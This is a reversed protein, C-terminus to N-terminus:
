PCRDARRAEDEKAAGLKGILTDVDEWFQRIAQQEKAPLEARASMDRLGYLDQDCQWTRLSRRVHRRDGPECGELRKALDTLEARLWELAQKRWRTREKDDLQGADADQGCGALAAACAANHRCGSEYDAALKPDAVFADAWLRASAAYHKKYYSIRAYAIREIADAPAEEGRLIAPLRTELEGLRRCEKIWQASPYPWDKRGRGLADGQKLAALAHGFDGVGQLALGLNCHAEAHDPKLEVTKRLAAAAEDFRSMQFLTTGLNYHASGHTPNLEVAQRLAPAAEDLRGESELISGLNFHADAHDPKLQITQRYTAVAEDPRGKRDLAVGLNFYAEAYDPKLETALRCEAIAEDLHGKGTLVNGLNSHAVADDPNVKISHAFVAAADDLRGNKWLNVGLFRDTDGDELMLAVAERWAAVAADFHGSEVLILCLNRHVMAYDPKLEIVRRYVATAEDLRGRKRLAVGLNLRAGPSQPRIAVAATLFRIADDLQPPRCEQLAMGLDHNIWFDGPFAEQARKLFAVAVDTAGRQRLSMDLLFLAEPPQAAPDVDRALKELAQRDDNRRAARVAQRWADTDAASLVQEVWDAEPAKAHRALILWHDLAAVLTARVARPRRELLAAAEEPPSVDTHLGYDSFAQRYDPLARERLFRSEKANVEAQLLRLEELLIVMRGDAEEEALERLLEQVRLAVEPGPAGDRLLAEARKAAALAQPWKGEKQLREAEDLASHLDTAIRAQRASHDRAIWGVCGAVVALAAFFAAAASWVMPRHRRAWKRTKELCSPRRAHIPKDELYLRLDDALEQATAYRAPIDKEMAKHVIIELEAPAKPNWRRLLRPEESAIRHILNQRDRGEFLPRLAVLEYLTAGLSYVDTHHDVSATHGLAQEPSMYRLTGVLDGTMTLGTQDQCRSLGFDTIWLNARGDVLLNAPKIDRHVVGLQHAHELAEAAQVGLRAVMEFYARSQTSRETALGAIRSTPDSDRGSPLPACANPAQGQPNGSGLPQPESELQPEMSRRLAEIATALTQGEIYQMAYYHVGREVGVAYVPVIHQHHLHAAAHAENKFRQLQRADLTAMFPLVKLAVRRSLSVQIAEYVVGM